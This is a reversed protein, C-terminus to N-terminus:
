LSFKGEQTELELLLSYSLDPDPVAKDHMKEIVHM